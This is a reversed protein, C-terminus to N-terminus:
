AHGGGHERGLGLSQKILGFGETVPPLQAQRFLPAEDEAENEVIGARGAGIIKEVTQPLVAAWGRRRGDVPREFEQRGLPEDMLDLAQRSEHPARVHEVAAPRIVGMVPEGGGLEQDAGGAAPDDLHAVAPDADADILGGGRAAEPGGGRGDLDLADAGFARCIHRLSM